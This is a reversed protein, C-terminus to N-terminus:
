CRLRHQVISAASVLTGDLLDERVGAVRNDVGKKDMTFMSGDAESEYGLKTM